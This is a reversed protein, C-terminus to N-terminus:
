RVGVRGGTGDDSACAVVHLPTKGTNTKSNPDMEAGLLNVACHFHAASRAEGCCAHLPSWGSADPRSLIIRPSCHVQRSTSPNNWTCLTDNGGGRLVGSSKPSSTWAPRELCGRGSRESIGGLGRELLTHVMGPLGSSAALHLSTKHDAVLTDSSGKAALEGDAVTSIWFKMRRRAISDSSVDEADAKEGSTSTRDKSTKAEDGQIERGVVLPSDSALSVVLEQTAATRIHRHRKRLALMKNLLRRAEGTLIRKMLSSSAIGHATLDPGEVAISSTAGHRVLTKAASIAGAAAALFLPRRGLSDPVDLAEARAALIRRVNAYSDDTGSDDEEGESEGSSRANDEANNGEEPIPPHHSSDGNGQTLIKHRTPRLERRGFVVEVIPFYSVEIDRGDMSDGSDEDGYRRSQNRPEYGTRHERRGVSHRSTVARFYRGVELLTRDSVRLNVDHLAGRFQRLFLKGDGNRRLTLTRTPTRAPLLRSM